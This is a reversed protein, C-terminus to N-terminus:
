PKHDEKAAIVKRGFLMFPVGLLLTFALAVPWLKVDGTVQPDATIRKEYHGHFEKAADFDEEEVMVRVGGTLMAWTWKVQPVHEDFIHSEIGNADLFSRFLYADEVKWFTVVNRM